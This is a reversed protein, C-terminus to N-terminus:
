LNKLMFVKFLLDYTSFANKKKAIRLTNKQLQVSLPTKFAFLRLNNIVKGVPNYKEWSFNLILFNNCFNFKVNDSFFNIFPIM